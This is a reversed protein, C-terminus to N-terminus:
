AGEKGIILAKLEEDLADSPDTVVPFAREVQEALAARVADVQEASPLVPPTDPFVVVNYRVEGQEEAVLKEVLHIEAATVITARYPEGADLVIEVELNGVDTNQISLVRARRLQGEWPIEVQDGVDLRHGSRDCMM